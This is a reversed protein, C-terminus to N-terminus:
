SLEFKKNCFFYEKPQSNSFVIITKDMAFKEIMYSYWQIAHEDLNSCPEDLLLVPAADTIAVLLKTKQKMGSSFYKIPKNLHKELQLLQITQEAEANFKRFICLHQIFEIVTLAEPMQMYSTAISIYKSWESKDLEKQNLKIIIRGDTPSVLGAIMKLLTSKGSGNNGTIVLKDKPFIELNLNKYLYNQYFKKSVSQLQIHVGNMM